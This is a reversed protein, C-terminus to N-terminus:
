NELEETAMSPVIVAPIRPRQSLELHAELICLLLFRIIVKHGLCASIPEERWTDTGIIPGHDHKPLHQANPLYSRLLFYNVVCYFSRCCLFVEKNLVESYSNGGTYMGSTM